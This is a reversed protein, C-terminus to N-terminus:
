KYLKFFAKFLTALAFIVQPLLAVKSGLSDVGILIVTTSYAISVVVFLLGIGIIGNNRQRIAEQLETKSMKKVSKSPDYIKNALKDFYAYISQYKDKFYSYIDIEKTKKAKEKVYKNTKAKKSKVKKLKIDEYNLKFNELSPEKPQKIRKFIKM